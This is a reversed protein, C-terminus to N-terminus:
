GTGDAFTDGIEGCHGATLVFKDGADNRVGFGSTCIWGGTQNWITAGGAWPSWDDHRSALRPREQRVVTVPVDAKPLAIAPQDTVLVLGSGDAPIRVSYGTTRIRAAANELEALSYPAHAIRVPATRAVAALSAPPEGKWWLVVEKDTLAIGTFGAHEGRGIEARLKEAAKVL